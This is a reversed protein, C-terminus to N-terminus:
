IFNNILHWLGQLKQYLIEHNRIYARLMLDVKAQKMFYFCLIIPLLLALYNSIIDSFAPRIPEDIMQINEVKHIRRKSNPHTSFLTFYGNEGLFALALAMHSGGFAQAAQKDCRYEIQRSAFRRLFEYFNYVIFRNFFTILFNLLYYIQLMLRSTARGTYPILATIKVSFDMIITLLKAVINTAKQNAIILFTPLFDKNILHSMEHALVCRLNELFEEATDSEALYHNILGETLVIARSGLSSVAFANVETSNKVYLKVSKELFREQVQNFIKELFAYDPLKEFRQCKKLSTKISFGFLFDLIFYILMFFSVWFLLFWMGLIFKQSIDHSFTLSNNHRQAFPILLVLLPSALISINFITVIYVLILNLPKALM